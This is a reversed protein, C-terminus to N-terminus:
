LVGVRVHQLYIQTNSVFSFLVESWSVGRGEVSNLVMILLIFSHLLRWTTTLQPRWIIKHVIVRSMTTEVYWHDYVVSWLISM